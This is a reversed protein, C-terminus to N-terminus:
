RVKVCRLLSDVGRIKMIYNDGDGYVVVEAQLYPIQHNVNDNIEYFNVTSTKILTGRTVPGMLRNLITTSDIIRFNDFVQAHINIAPIFLCCVLALKKM